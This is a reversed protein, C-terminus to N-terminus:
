DLWRALTKKLDAEVVPKGIGPFPDAALGASQEQGTGHDRQQHLGVAGGTDPSAVAAAVEPAASPEVLERTVMRQQLLQDVFLVEARLVGRTVRSRM